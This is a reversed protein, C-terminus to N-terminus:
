CNSNFLENKRGRSSSALESATNGARPAQAIDDSNASMFVYYYENVSM